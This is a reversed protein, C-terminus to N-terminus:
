KFNGCHFLTIKGLRFNNELNRKKKKTWHEYRHEGHPKASRIWKACEQCRTRRDTVEGIRLPSFIDSFIQIVHGIVTHLLQIFTNSYVAM